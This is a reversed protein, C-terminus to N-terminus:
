SCKTYCFFYSLRSELSNWTWVFSRLAYLLWWHMVCCNYYLDLIKNVPNGKTKEAIEWLSYNECSNPSLLRDRRVYEFWIFDHLRTHFFVEPSKTGGIEFRKPTHTHSHAKKVLPVNLSVYFKFRYSLLRYAHAFYLFLLMLERFLIFGLLFVFITMYM